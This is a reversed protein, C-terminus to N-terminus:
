DTGLQDRSLVEVVNFIQSTEPLIELLISRGSPFSEPVIPGPAGKECYCLDRERRPVLDEEKSVFQVRPSRKASSHRRAARAATLSKSTLCM